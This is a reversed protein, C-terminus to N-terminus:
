PRETAKLSMKTVMGQRGKVVPIITYKYQYEM